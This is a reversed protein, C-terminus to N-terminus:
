FKTTLAGVIRGPLGRVQNAPQYLKNTVNEGNVTASMKVKQLTWDYGVAVNWLTYEPLFLAVNRNDGAAKGVYNFGAGVWLGKIAEQRFSYRSWVNALTKATAQPHAGLYYVYGAPEALNRIDEQAISGFVQLNAYPSWTIEYEIGRGRVKTGQLDTALTVGTVIQNVTQVVNTQDIQYVSLTSSVKGDFLDTKIGAEYGEGTVPLAQTTPVSQLVGNVTQITRLFSQAPLTYSQSYSAYLMVGKVIKFGGGIQPTTYHTRYGQGVPNTGAAAIYNTTQSQSRNYRLGGVLSLRENLLSANIVGYAAQDSVFAVNSTNLQTLQDASFATSRDVFYTPSAPNVDWTQFYPSSASGTNQRLRSNGFTADYYLGAVPKLSGWKFYYNGAAEIQATRNFGWQEQLRQRRPILAPAETGNQLQLADGNDATVQQAFALEAALQQASTLATWSPAASWKGGSYVLSDPPALYVTGIGTQLQSVRNHNYNFNGRAIWHHGLTLDLEANATELDTKRWDNAGDYNFRRSLRPYYPLFGPDSADSGFGAAADPGTKGTLAAASGPYGAAANFANVISSPTSVEMNPLYVAPPTERRQFWQYNAKFTLIPTLKWTFTPVVVTTKSKSPEVYQFGNEAAANVRFLVSEGVVPQNVDVSARTYDYSGASVTVSSAAVSTPRKSIYNVTGGPAIQGYLLSAPGKVVEVREIGVTDVYVNGQPSEYFGDHEPPQPFGRISFVANGANFERAGSTVGATHKVVDFLERAGVDAIFQPTFASIAFPLDVIPTDIRTASVSNGAVYGRDRTSQVEFSPLRVMEM